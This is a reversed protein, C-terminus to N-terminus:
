TAPPQSPLHDIAGGLCLVALEWPLKFDKARVPIAGLRDAVETVSFHPHQSRIRAAVRRVSDLSSRLSAHPTTTYALSSMFALERRVATRPTPIQDVRSRLAELLRAPFTPFPKYPTIVVLRSPVNLLLADREDMDTAYWIGFRCPTPEPRVLPPFRLAAELRATCCIYILPPGYSSRPLTPIRERVARCVPAGRAFESLRSRPGSLFGRTRLDPPHVPAPVDAPPTETPEAM